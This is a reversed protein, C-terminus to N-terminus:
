GGGAGGAAWVTEPEFLQAPGCGAAQLDFGTQGVVVDAPMQTTKPIANWILARNDSYDDVILRGGTAVPNIPGGFEDAGTGPSNDNLNPQGLVFDASAGNTKPIHKFGLVRANVWDPMVLIGGAFFPDGYPNHFSGPGIGSGGKTFDTQGIVVVAAQFNKLKIPAAEARSAVGVAATIIIVLMVMNKRAVITRTM